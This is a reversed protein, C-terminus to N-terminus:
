VGLGLGVGELFFDLLEFLVFLLEGLGDLVEVGAVGLFYFEQLM